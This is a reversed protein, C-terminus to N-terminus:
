IVFSIEFVIEDNYSNNFHIKVCCSRFEQDMRPLSEDNQSNESSGAVLNHVSNSSRCSASSYYELLAQHASDRPIGIM